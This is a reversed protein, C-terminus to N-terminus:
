YAARVRDIVQQLKEQDFPKNIVESVGVQSAKELDTGESQTTVMVIPLVELPYLKRMEITLDLGTLGPMNLDTFILDPKTKAVEELAREPFEFLTVEYGLQFLAKKYLSLIMRSDDVAYILLDNNQKHEKKLLAVQEAQDSRGNRQLLKEFYIRTDPHAGEALYKVVLSFFHADDVLNLFASETQADVLATVVRKADQDESKTLNKLGMLLTQDLNKEIAKAAAVRVMGDDDTLGGALIYAGKEVPLAGLAEYAAFRVNPDTPEQHLFNRIPGIAEAVGIDGLVNLTHILVDVNSNELNQVLLPVALAGLNILHTKALTRAHADPAGLADVLHTMAHATKITAFANLIAVDLESDFGFRKKLVTVADNTGIQALAEISVEVFKRNGSYLFDAFTPVSQPMAMQKLTTLLVYLTDENTESELRSVLDPLIVHGPIMGSVEILRATEGGPATVILDLLLKPEDQIREALVMQVQGPSFALDEFSGCLLHGLVPLAFAKDLCELEELVHKQIDASVDSLHDMLVCGKVLDQTSANQHLEDIFHVESIWNM